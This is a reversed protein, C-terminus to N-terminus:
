HDHHVDGDVDVNINFEVGVQGNVTLGGSVNVDGDHHHDDEVFDNVLKDLLDSEEDGHHHEDEHHHEPEPQHAEDHGHDEVEQAVQAEDSGDAHSSEKIEILRSEGHKLLFFQMESLNQNRLEENLRRPPENYVENSIAFTGWTTAVSCMALLDKHMQVAEEPTVNGYGFKDRPHYGGIPLSCLHFPGFENGITKFIEAYGTAGVTFLKYRPTIIVWSCWLAGNDDNMERSHYNQSPTCNVEVKTSATQEDENRDPYHIHDVFEVEDKAWWNLEVVNTCGAKNMWEKVGLPVYWLVMDVFRENIARVTPLDLHDFHTNSIVVIDIRPLDEVKYVPNRYRKDTGPYYYKIGRQSFNPNSLINIGDLQFLVSSHGLWTTRIGNDPPLSIRDVDPECRKFLEDEDLTKEDPVKSEDPTLFYKMVTFNNPPSLETVWPLHYRNEKKTCVVRDIDKNTIKVTKKNIQMQKQQDHM